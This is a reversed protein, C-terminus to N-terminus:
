IFIAGRKRITTQLFDEWYLVRSDDSPYRALNDSKAIIVRLRARCNSAALERDEHFEM